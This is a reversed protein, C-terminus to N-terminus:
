HRDKGSAEFLQEFVTHEAKRLHQNFTQRTIGLREALESGDSKRPREFYGGHYATQLVAFKRETLEAEVIDYLLRPSYQLEQSLLTVDPYIRRVSQLIERPEVDGPVEIILEPESGAQKRVLSVVEGGYENCVLTLTPAELQLEVSCGDGTSRILRVDLADFEREFVSIVAKPSLGTVTLYKLVTGESPTITDDVDIQFEGDAVDLFPQFLQESSLTLKRRETSTLKNEREKSVTADVFGAVVHETEGDTCGFPTVNGRLWRETGDPHEIWHEFGDTPEGTELARAVPHEEEPFPTGDTDYLNWEPESRIEGSNEARELGLLEIARGNAYSIEGSPEFVVISVPCSEFMRSVTTEEGSTNEEFRVPEPGTSSLPRWWARARAGIRKSNLVDREALAKLRDYAVRRSCCLAEAVESTALPEGPNAVDDFVGLVADEDVRPVRKRM